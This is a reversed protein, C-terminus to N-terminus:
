RCRLKARQRVVASSGTGLTPGQILLVAGHRVALALAPEEVRLAAELGGLPGLVDGREVLQKIVVEASASV